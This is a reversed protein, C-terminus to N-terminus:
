KSTIKRKTSLKQKIKTPEKSLGFYDSFSNSTRYMSSRGSRQSDVFGLKRLEKLHSYAQSGRRAAIDTSSVPQLYAVHTLTNLVSRTMLPRLSFKRAVKTYQPKLQMVFKPGPLKSIELAVMNENFSKMINMVIKMTKRKSTIRAAKALEEIELPRGYAYLASEIRARINNDDSITM